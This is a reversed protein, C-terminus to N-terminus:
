PLSPADPNAEPGFYRLVVLPEVDSTNEFVVGARAASETCFVEDETLEHFRILKPCDLRLRNMLGSGQVTILGYAGTDKITCKERPQLTLEKASFLQEGAVKGYVIWKDGPVGKVPAPKLYHNQKFHDDTNGKWDLQDVLYDLDHHHKKPVDKVLLSWPVERGEVLSQYMGFVDSGWQPEYTCISGPAHLICPPILWGTGPKLRYARSLDLIGNDGKNWNELCRRVDAKTTGPELGMFTYPFNNGVNNHQPPFYYSEPKGELGLLAAQRANQHMHHPIPGMNDFFKSYVPWKKYKRWIRGGILDAGCEAVAQRLTFRRKGVVVYSLGEDPTRNENAAPTTSAFWREDIGGRNLGFAYLDDPHLKLRKGPHLFSRPVWCPALRLLGGTEALAGEVLSAVSRKATKLSSVTNM